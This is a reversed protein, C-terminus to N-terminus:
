SDVRHQLENLEHVYPLNIKGRRQGDSSDLYLKKLFGGVMEDALISLSIITSICFYFRDGPLDIFVVKIQSLPM